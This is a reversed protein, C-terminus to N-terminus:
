FFSGFFDPLAPMHRPTRAPFRLVVSYTDPVFYLYEGDSVAGAFGVGLPSVQSLDFTQWAALEEFSGVTTDYRALIGDLNIVANEYPVFYLYRGDFAGGIFPGVSTSIRSIPFLTWSSRATLGGDGRTDYRASVLPGAVYVTSNYFPTLYVYRGDYVGGVFGCANPDLTAIDFTTWALPSGFPRARDYRVIVGSCSPTGGESAHVDPVFYVYTGDFIAGQYLTADSGVTGVDFDVWSSAADFTKRTDYQLAHSSGFPAFYLYRGDFTGGSYGKVQASVRTADFTKWSTTAHFSAGDYRLFVVPGGPASGAGVFYVDHGDFVAGRFGKVGSDDVGSPDFTEWSGPDTFSRTTDYRQVPAGAPSPALYVYRGDYTGGQYSGTSTLQWSTWGADLDAYPTSGEHPADPRTAAGDVDFTKADHARGDSPGADGSEAVTPFLLQCGIGLGAPLAVVFM